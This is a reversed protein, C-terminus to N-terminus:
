TPIHKHNQGKKICKKNEYKVDKYGKNGYAHFHKKISNKKYARTIKAQELDNQIIKLLILMSMCKSVVNSVSLVFM